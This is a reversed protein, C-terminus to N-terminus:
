TAIVHYWRIYFYSGVKKNWVLLISAVIVIRNKANIHVTSILVYKLVSIYNDIISWIFNQNMYINRLIKSNLIQYRKFTNDQMIQLNYVSSNIFGSSKKRANCILNNGDNYELYTKFYFIVNITSFPCFIRSIFACILNKAVM